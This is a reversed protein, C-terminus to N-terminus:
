RMENRGRNVEREREDEQERQGRDVSKEEKNSKRAKDIDTNSKM